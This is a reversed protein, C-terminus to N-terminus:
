LTKPGRSPFDPRGLLALNLWSPDLGGMRPGRGFFWKRNMEPSTKGQGLAQIQNEKKELPDGEFYSPSSLTSADWFKCSTCGGKVGLCPKAVSTSHWVGWGTTCAWIRTTCSGTSHPNKLFILSLRRCLSFRWSIPCKCSYFTEHFTAHFKDHFIRPVKFSRKRLFSSCCFQVLFKVANEM